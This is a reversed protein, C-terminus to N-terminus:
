HDIHCIEQEWEQQAMLGVDGGMVINYEQSFRYEVESGCLPCEAEVVTDLTGDDRKTIHQLTMNNM